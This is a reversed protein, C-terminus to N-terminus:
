NFQTSARKVMVLISLSKVFASLSCLGNNFSEERLRNALFTSSFNVEDLFFDPTDVSSAVFYSCFISALNSTLKGGNITYRGLLDVAFLRKWSSDSLIICM